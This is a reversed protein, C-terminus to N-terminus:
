FFPCERPASIKITSAATGSPLKGSLVAAVVPKGTLAAIERSLGFHSLLDGRNPTIEVDLITDNPFLDAISAGIKSEPSLILLGAADQGLGLEIASCLM